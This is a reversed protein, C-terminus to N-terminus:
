NLSREKLLEKAIDLITSADKYSLDKKTKLLYEILQIAIKERESIEPKANCQKSDSNM